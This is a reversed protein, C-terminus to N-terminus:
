QKSKIHQIVTNVTKWLPEFPVGNQHNISSIRYIIGWHHFLVRYAEFLSMNPDYIHAPESNTGNLEMIKINDGQYLDDLSSVRLDFRGFYFGEIPKAISDFVAVLKQSILHNGNLFTTGRCHNGISILEKKEGYDLVIKLEEYYMELLMDYHYLTRDNTQFLEKLTSKGNGVVTLFEKQVVSHINGRKAGPIRSYMIGLEMPYNIYEQVIFNRDIKKLYNDLQKENNIKEVGFGREGKDPKCIIPFHLNNNVWALTENKSGITFLKGKPLFKQNIKSLIKWKSYDVFGGIEMCPNAASFFVMSLSRLSYWLYVVYVPIYFFWFPWFEWKLWKSKQQSM